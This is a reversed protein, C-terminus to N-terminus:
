SQEGDETREDDAKLATWADWLDACLAEYVNAAIVNAPTPSGDFAPGLEPEDTALSLDDLALELLQRTYVPVAGDAIEHIVDSPEDQQPGFEDRYQTWRERLDERASALLASLHNESM